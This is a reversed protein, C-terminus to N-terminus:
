PTAGLSQRAKPKLVLLLALAALAPLIALPNASGLWVPAAGIAIAIAFLLGGQLLDRAAGHGSGEVAYALVWASMIATVAAIGIEVASGHLLIAPNYIFLFPLLYASACFKLAVVSTKWMDAGAIGAAVYSAIAVPPTLMSLLGFYFLFFHAAMPVIGTKVLAPALVVSMVIYVAATPMGMGLIIAIIAAAMLMALLGYAKALETLIGVLQLGLGTINLVGIIVGAAACIVLLPALDKGAGIAMDRLEALHPLRRHQIANLVLLLAAVILASKGPNYGLWFLLYILLLLPLVFVWGTALVAAFRPLKGREIGALGYRAAYRDIQTFIGWYYVLAPVIGALAVESYPVQLFEAILFATTGMVPPVIQGGNSSSAEIAAAYHPKFGHSKMLPITIIGTGLINGVTTGNITGFVSSAVVEVKAAGGRHRGMAALAANNFFDTAGGREMVKGMIMFGLVLTAGTDLVLGPIGNTDNYLYLVYKAPATETAEFMGPLHHGWIGYALFAWVLVTMAMGCHKRTAEIALLVAILAPIWKHPGRDTITTLWAETNWGGYVWAALAVGALGLDLAGAARGYPKVLLAGAVAFGLIVALYAHELVAVGVRLPVDLLWAIGLLPIAALCVDRAVAAIRTM